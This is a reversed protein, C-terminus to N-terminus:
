RAAAGDLPCLCVGNGTNTKVKKMKKKEREFTIVDWFVLIGEYRSDLLEIDLDNMVGIHLKQMETHFQACIRM